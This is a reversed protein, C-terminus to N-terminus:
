EGSSPTSPDKRPNTHADSLPFFKYRQSVVTDQSHSDLDFPPLAPPVRPRPSETSKRSNHLYNRESDDTGIQDTNATPLSGAKVTRATGGEQPM